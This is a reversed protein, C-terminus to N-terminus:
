LRREAVGAWIASRSVRISRSVAAPIATARPTKTPMGAAAPGRALIVGGAKRVNAVGFELNQLLPM